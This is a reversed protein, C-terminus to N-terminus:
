LNQHVEEIAATVIAAGPRFLPNITRKGTFLPKLTEDSDTPTVDELLTPTGAYRPLTNKSDIIVAGVADYDKLHAALCRHVGDIVLLGHESREIIPPLIVKDGENLEVAIPDFVNIKYQEHAELLKQTSSFRNSNVIDILSVLGKLAVEDFSVKIDNYDYWESMSAREISKLTMPTDISKISNHTM